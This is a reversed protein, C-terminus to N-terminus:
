QVRRFYKFHRNNHNHPITCIRFASTYMGSPEQPILCHSTNQQLPRFSFHRIFYTIHLSTETGTPAHHRLHHPELPGLEQGDHPAARHPPRAGRRLPRPDGGPLARRVPGLLVPVGGGAGAGACPVPLPPCPPCEM